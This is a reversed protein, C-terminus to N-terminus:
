IVEVLSPRVRYVRGAEEIEYYSGKQGEFVGQFKGTHSYSAGGRGKTLFRMKTGKRPLKNSM